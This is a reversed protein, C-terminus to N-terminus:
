KLPVIIPNDSGDDNIVYYNGNEDKALQLPVGSEDTKPDDDIEDDYQDGGPIEEPGQQGLQMIEPDTSGKWEQEKIINEVIRELDEQTLKITKSM